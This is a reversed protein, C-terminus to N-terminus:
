QSFENNIQQTRVTHRLESIVRKVLKKRREVSGKSVAVKQATERVSLGEALCRMVALAKEDPLKSRELLSGKRESFDGGCTRCHIMRIKKSGRGSWGGWRLNGRGQVGHDRCLDNVCALTGLDAM